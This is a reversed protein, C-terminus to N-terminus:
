FDLSLLMMESEKSPMLGKNKDVFTYPDNPEQIGQSLELVNNGQSLKPTGMSIKLTSDMCKVLGTNTLIMWLEVKLIM